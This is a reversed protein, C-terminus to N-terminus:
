KDCRFKGRRLIRFFMEHYNLIKLIWSLIKLTLKLKLELTLM